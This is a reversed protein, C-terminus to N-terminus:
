DLLVHVKELLSRCCAAPTSSTYLAAAWRLVSGIINGLHPVNNVYPLASTVLINRQGPIPLKAHLKSDQLLPDTALFPHGGQHEHTKCPGSPKAVRRGARLDVGVVVTSVEMQQEISEPGQFLNLINKLLRNLTSNVRARPAGIQGRTV